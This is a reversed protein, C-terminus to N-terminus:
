QKALHFSSVKRPNWNKHWYFTWLNELQATEAHGDVFAVNIAGPLFKSTVERPADSAPFEGHRAVFQTLIKLSGATSVIGEPQYLNRPPLDTEELRCNWYIADCFAPTLAPQKVASQEHFVNRVKFTGDKTQEYNRGLGLYGNIAYSGHTVTDSMNDTYSWPADATGKYFHAPPNTASPCLWVGNTRGHYDVLAGMWANKFATSNYDLYSPCFKGRNDAAYMLQANALQKVNALCQLRKVKQANPRWLPASGFNSLRLPTLILFVGVIAVIVLLDTRSFAWTPTARVSWRRADQIYRAM